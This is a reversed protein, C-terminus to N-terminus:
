SNEGQGGRNAIYSNAQAYGKEFLGAWLEGHLNKTAGVSWTSGKEGAIVVGDTAGSVSIESVTKWWRTGQTVTANKGQLVEPTTNGYYDTGKVTFTIGTDDGTSKISIKGYGGAMSAVGNKVLSGDLTLNGASSLNDGDAIGDAIGNDRYVPEPNLAFLVKDKDGWSTGTSVPIASNVTTYVVEKNNDYFKMGWIQDDTIPDIILNEIAKGAKANDGTGAHALTGLCALIWCTGAQGQAMDDATVLVGAATSSGSSVSIDAKFMTGTSTAYKGVKSAANPNATDGGAVPMPLDEGYFWKKILKTAKAESMGAHMNGLTEVQNTNTAGGWWKANAPHSHIAAYTIYKVYTDSSSGSPTDKEFANAASIKNYATKLDTFEASTIGGQAAAELLNRMELYNYKGDGNNAAKLIDKLATTTIDTNIDSDSWLVESLSETNIIPSTINGTQFELVSDGGLDIPGTLDTSAAVDAFTYESIGQIFKQGDANAAINCGYVLLDGEGSLSNGISSLNSKYSALNSNNLSTSGIFLSGTNGHSVIQISELNNYNKATNEIQLIGDNQGDVFFWESNEPLNDILSSFDSLAEDIFILHKVSSM